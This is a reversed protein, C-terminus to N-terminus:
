GKYMITPCNNISLIWVKNQSNILSQWDVKKEKIIDMCEPSVNEAKNINQIILKLLGQVSRISGFECRLPCHYIHSRDFWEYICEVCFLSSCSLCEVAHKPIELCIGCCLMDKVDKDM